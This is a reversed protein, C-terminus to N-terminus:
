REELAGPALIALGSEKRLAAMVVLTSTTSSSGSNM